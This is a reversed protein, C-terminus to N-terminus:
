SVRPESRQRRDCWEQLVQPDWRVHKGIRIGLAGPSRGRERQYYLSSKPIKLLEPVEEITLLQKM